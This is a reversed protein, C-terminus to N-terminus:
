EQQQWCCVFYFLVSDVRVVSVKHLFFYIGKERKFAILLAEIQLPAVLLRRNDGKDTKNNSQNVSQGRPPYPSDNTLYNNNSYTHQKTSQKTQKNPQSNQVHLMYCIPKTFVAAVVRGFVAAFLRLRTRPSRM